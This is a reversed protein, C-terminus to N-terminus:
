SGRLSSLCNTLNVYSDHWSLSIEDNMRMSLEQYHEIQMFMRRIGLSISESTNDVFVAGNFTNRLVEKDSTILPKNAAVAEYCGCLLCYDSTTLVMVGDVAYLMDVFERDPMFGTFIVNQPSTRAMHAPVRKLDGSVYLYVNDEILTKMAELVETIPEDAGFSSIMLLNKEGVLEVEKGKALQPLKDVLVFPRGGVAKVMQALYDNTVITLDAIRLTLYHLRMFLWIRMSGAHPKNLRFTTHRDIVLPRNSFLRYVCAVTALIMSPNQVFLIDPKNLWLVCCTRIISKPYRMMGQYDFIFLSADFIKALEM